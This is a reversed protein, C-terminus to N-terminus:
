QIYYSNPVKKIFYNEYFQESTENKDASSKLIKEFIDWKCNWRDYIDKINFFIIIILGIILIIQIAYFNKNM